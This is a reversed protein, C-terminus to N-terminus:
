RKVKVKRPVVGEPLTADEDDSAARARKAAPTAKPSKRATNGSGGIMVEGSIMAGDELRLVPTTLAGKVRATKSLTLHTSADVDGKVTGHIIVTRAQVNGNIRADVDLHLDGDLRVDGDVHGDITLDDAGTISGRVRTTSSILTQTAM